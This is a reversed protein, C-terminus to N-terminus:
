FHVSRSIIRSLVFTHNNPMFINKLRRSLAPDDKFSALDHLLVNPKGKTTSPIRLDEMHKAMESDMSGPNPSWLPLSIDGIVLRTMRPRIEELFKDTESDLSAIKPVSPGPLAGALNSFKDFSLFTFSAGWYRVVDYKGCGHASKLAKYLKADSTLASICAQLTSYRPHIARWIHWLVYSAEERINIDFKSSSARVEADSM